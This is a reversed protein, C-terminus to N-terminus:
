PQGALREGVTGGLYAPQWLTRDSGVFIERIRQLLKADERKRRSEGRKLWAFFGSKSVDLVHCM